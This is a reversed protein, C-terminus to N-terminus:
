DRDHISGKWRPSSLLNGLLDLLDLGSKTLRDAQIGLLYEHQVGRGRQRSCVIMVDDYQIPFESTFRLGLIGEAIFLLFDSVVQNIYEEGDLLDGSCIMQERTQPTYTVFSFFM